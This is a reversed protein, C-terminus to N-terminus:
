HEALKEDLWGAGALPVITVDGGELALGARLPWVSMLFAGSLASGPRKQARGRVELAGNKANTVTLAVLEPRVRLHLSAALEAGSAVDAAVDPLSGLRTFLELTRDGPGGRVGIGTEFSPPSTTSLKASALRARMWLGSSSAKAVRVALGDLDVGSDPFTVAEHIDASAVNTWAKGSTALAVGGLTMRAKDLALDVRGELAGGHYDARAALTAGGGHFSTDEPAFPQWAALDASHASTLAASARAIVFPALLDASGLEIMARAGRLEVPTGTAHAASTEIVVANHSAADVHASLDLDTQLSLSPASVLVDATHFTVRTSPQVVGRELGIDLAVPGLGRTVEIPTGKPLYTTAISSLVLEGKQHLGASLYRLVAIGPTERPDFRDIRADLRADGGRILDRGGLSFLGDHTLMVAPLVWVERSPKIFFGGHVSGEGRYRFEMTWVERLSASVDPMDITWLTYQDDPIPPKAVEQEVPPDAYGDIPPFAGIREEQGVITEVKQRLRYTVNEATMKRIHLRRKILAFLDIKLSARDLLILMQVNSDQYRLSLDRLEVHGPFLSWASRYELRLKTEDTGIWGRLLHTRLIVNAALLYVVFTGVLAYAVIRLWKPVRGGLRRLNSAARSAAGALARSAGSAHSATRWARAWM